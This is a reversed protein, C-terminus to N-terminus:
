SENWQSDKKVAHDEYDSMTLKDISSVGKSDVNFLAKNQSSDGLVRLEQRQLMKYGNLAGSSEDIKQRDHLDKYSGPRKEYEKETQDEFFIIKNAKSSLDNSSHTNSDNLRKVFSNLASDSVLIPNLEWLQKAESLKLSDIFNLIDEKIENLEKDDFHEPVYFSLTKFVELNDIRNIGKYLEAKYDISFDEGESQGDEGENLFNIINHSDDINSNADVPSIRSLDRQFM